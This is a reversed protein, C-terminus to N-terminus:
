NTICVRFVHSPLRASPGCTKNDNNNNNSGSSSNNASNSTNRKSNNYSDSTNTACQRPHGGVPRKSM